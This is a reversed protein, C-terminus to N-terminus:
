VDFLIVTVTFVAGVAVIEALPGVVKQAPPLTTNVEDTALPIVQDVPAVVPAIVTLM